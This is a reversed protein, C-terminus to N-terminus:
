VPLVLKTRAKLYLDLLAYKKSFLKFGISLKPIHNFDSSNKKKM